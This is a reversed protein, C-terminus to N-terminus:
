IYVYKIVEEEEKEDEIKIALNCVPLSSLLFMFCIYAVATALSHAQTILESCKQM